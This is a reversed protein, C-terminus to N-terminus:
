TCYAETAWSDPCASESSKRGHECRSRFSQLRKARLQRWTVWYLWLALGSHCSLSSAGMDESLTVSPLPLLLVLALSATLRGPHALLKNSFRTIWVHVCFLFLYTLYILFSFYNSFYFDQPYLVGFCIVSVNTLQLVGKLFKGLAHLFYFFFSLLWFSLSTFVVNLTECM